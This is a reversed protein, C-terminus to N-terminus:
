IGVLLERLQHLEISNKGGLSRPALEEKKLNPWYTEMEDKSIEIGNFKVSEEKPSFVGREDVSGSLKTELHNATGDALEYKFDSNADVYTTGDAKPTISSYKYGEIILEGLYRDTVETKTTHEIELSENQGVAIKQTGLPSFKYIGTILYIRGVDIAKFNGKTHTAVLVGDESANLVEATLEQKFNASCDDGYLGKLYITEGAIAEQIAEKTFSAQECESSVIGKIGASLRPSTPGETPNYEDDLVEILSNYRQLFDFLEAMDQSEDKTRQKPPQTDANNQNRTSTQEGGKGNEGAETPNGTAAPSCKKEDKICGLLLTLSFIAITMKQFM